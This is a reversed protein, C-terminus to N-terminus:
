PPTLSHWLAYAMYASPESRHKCVSGQLIVSSGVVGNAKDNLTNCKPCYLKMYHGGRPILLGDITNIKKQVHLKILALLYENSLTALGKFSAPDKPELLSSGDDTLTGLGDSNSVIVKTAAGIATNVFTQALNYLVGYDVSANVPITPLNLKKLGTEAGSGDYTHIFGDGFALSIVSM